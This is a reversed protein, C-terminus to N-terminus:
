INRLVHTCAVCVQERLAMTDIIRYAPLSPGSWVTRIGIVYTQLFKQKKECSLTWFRYTYPFQSKVHESVDIYDNVNGNTFLCKISPM